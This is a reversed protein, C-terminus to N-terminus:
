GTWREMTGPFPEEKGSEVAGNLCRRHIEKLGDTIEPFVEYHSRGILSDGALHYDAIYRRSAAIYRMDSNFIAIAAPTHEILLKLTTEELGIM